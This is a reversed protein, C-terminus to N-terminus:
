RDEQAPELHLRLGAHTDRALAVLGPFLEEIARDSLMLQLDARLSDSDTASRGRRETLHNQVAELDQFAQERRDSHKDLFGASNVVFKACLLCAAALLVPSRWERLRNRFRRGIM